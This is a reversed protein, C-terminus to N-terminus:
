STISKPTFCKRNWLFGIESKGTLDCMNDPNYMAAPIYHKCMGCVRGCDTKETDSLNRMDKGDSVLTVNTDRTMRQDNTQHVRRM